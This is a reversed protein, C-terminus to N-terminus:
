RQGTLTPLDIVLMQITKRFGIVLWESGDVTTFGFGKVEDEFQFARELRYTSNNWLFVGGRNAGLNTGTVLLPFKPHCAVATASSYSHQDSKCTHVATRSLVDLITINGGTGVIAMYQQDSGTLYFAVLSGYVRNLETTPEASNISWFQHLDYLDRKFSRTCVWGMDWDWLKILHDDASSLLYPQTAHVALSRVAGSHADIIKVNELEDTHTYVHITGRSDGSVAWQQRAIFKVSLYRRKGETIIHFTEFTNSQLNKKSICVGKAHGTLIWPKTPHVDISKLGGITFLPFRPAVHPEGKGNATDPDCNITLNLPVKHAEGGKERIQGCLNDLLITTNSHNDMDIHKPIHNRSWTNMYLIQLGDMDSPPKLQEQIAVYFVCTSHPLVYCENACIYRVSNNPIILFFIEDETKNILSVTCQIHKNPKFPLRLEMPYVDILDTHIYGLSREAVSLANMGTRSLEDTCEAVDLMEIIQQIDPRKAPNPDMCDISIKACVRIQELLVQTMSLIELRSTWSELVKEVESYGKQGTLIEQVIVGLSYLDSKFTMVHSHSEPALYGMSGFLQSTIARSQQEDFCKSLGFDVIKPEMNDDLLINAPKLDLHVIREGHLYHLGDCIGKIIQYRKKWELGGSADTIFEHLSGKPLYEFCLLRQRVDAMVFKGGYDCMKGQTDACYGLFRVINKHKVRMLCGVEQNYKKEDMDLTNKLKKVAVMKGNGLLGKYVVAFGGSGIQLDDSFDNTIAKLLPLPLDTPETNRNLLMHELINHTSAESDM